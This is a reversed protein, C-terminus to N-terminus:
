RFTCCVAGLGDLGYSNRFGRRALLQPNHYKLWFGRISQRSSGSSAAAASGDSHRSDTPVPTRLDEGGSPAHHGTAAAVSAGIAQTGAVALPRQRHM